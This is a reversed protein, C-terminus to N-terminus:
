TKTREQTIMHYHEIPQTRICIKWDYTSYKTKFLESHSLALPGLRQSSLNITITIFLIMIENSNVYKGEKLFLHISM